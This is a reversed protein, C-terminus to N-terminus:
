AAARPREGAYAPLTDPGKLTISSIHAGSDQCELSLTHNGAKLEFLFPKDIRATSDTLGVTQEQQASVPTPAIENGYRDVPIEESEVVWISNLKVRRLEYFPLTDDVRVILETPLTSQTTNLYTLWIEYQGDEPVSFDVKGSDGVELTLDTEFTVADKGYVPLTYGAMAESYLPETRGMRVNDEALAEWTTCSVLLMLVALLALGRRM